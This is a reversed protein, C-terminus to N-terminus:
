DDNRRSILILRVLQLIASALAAVYTLAAATLVKKAGQLEQDGFLQKAELIRIARHSADFEVPLTILQFAVVFVFLLIGVELLGSWGLILGLVIIPWSLRSGIKAFPVSLSRLKM